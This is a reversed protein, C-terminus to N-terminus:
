LGNEKEIQAALEAYYIEEGKSTVAYGVTGDEYVATPEILGKDVFNQMMRDLAMMQLEYAFREVFVDDETDVELGEREFFRMARGYAIDLAGIPMEDIEESLDM